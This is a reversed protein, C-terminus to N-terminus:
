EEVHKTLKLITYEDELTFCVKDTMRVLLYLGMGGRRLPPRGTKPIAALREGLGAQRGLEGRDRFVMVLSRGSPSDAVGDELVLAFSLWTDPEEPPYSHRVINSLAEELLMLADESLAKPIALRALFWSALERLMPIQERSPIAEVTCFTQGVGVAFSDCFAPSLAFQERLDNLVSCLAADTTSDATHHPLFLPTWSSSSM